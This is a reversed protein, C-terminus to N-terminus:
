KLAPYDVITEVQEGLDRVILGLIKEQTKIDLSSLAKGVIGIMLNALAMVEEVGLLLNLKDQLKQSSVVTDNITKVIREIKASYIMLDSPGSCHELINQLTMRLIAIENEISKADPHDRFKKVELQYKGLNYLEEDKEKRKRIAASGNHAACYNSGIVANASCQEGNSKM